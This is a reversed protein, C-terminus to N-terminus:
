RREGAMQDGCLTSSTKLPLQELYQRFLGMSKQEPRGSFYRIGQTYSLIDRAHMLLDDRSPATRFLGDAWDQMGVYLADELQAAAKADLDKRVLWHAFVFPLGTWATWEEGLDYRHPYADLGTRQRLGQNGILLFADNPEDLTVYAKPTVQHKLALLIQLLDLSTAAESTIGICADGLVEIPRKAHLWVSGTKRISALCFGSLLRFQGELRFCDALPAPGADIVGQELAPAVASPVLDVLRLDRSGMDFYFPECSLYPIRGVRLTM